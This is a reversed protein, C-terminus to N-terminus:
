TLQLLYGALHKNLEEPAITDKREDHEESTLINM